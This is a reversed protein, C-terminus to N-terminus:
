SAGHFGVIRVEHRVRQVQCAFTDSQRARIRRHTADDDPIARNNAFTKVFVVPAIVRFDDRQLLGPRFRAPGSDVDRQFTQM